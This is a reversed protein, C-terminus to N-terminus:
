KINAKLYEEVKQNDNSVSFVVYGGETVVLVDNLKKIEDPRYSEYLAILDKKRSEIAAKAKAEAASDKVQMVMLENATASTASTYLTYSELGAFSLDYLTQATKEPVKIMEDDYSVNDMVQTVFNDADFSKKASCGAIMLIALTAVLISLLQKKM